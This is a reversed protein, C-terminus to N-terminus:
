TAQRLFMVRNRWDEKHEAIWLARLARVLRRVASQQITQEDILIVGSHTLGQEAWNRLLPPITRLDYTVLTLRQHDAERLVVEDTASLLQGQQWDRM